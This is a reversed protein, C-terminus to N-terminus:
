FSHFTRSFYIKPHIEPHRTWIVYDGPYVMGDDINPKTIQIHCAYDGTYSEKAFVRCPHKFDEEKFPYIKTNKLFDQWWCNFFRLCDGAYTLIFKM